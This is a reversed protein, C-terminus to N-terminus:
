CRRWTGPRRWSSPDEGLRGFVDEVFHPGAPGVLHRRSIITTAPLFKPSPRTRTRNGRQEGFEASAPSTASSNLNAPEETVGDVGPQGRHVSGSAVVMKLSPSVPREIQSRPCPAVVGRSRRSRHGPQGSRIRSMMELPPTSGLSAACPKGARRVRRGASTWCRRSERRPCRRMIPLSSRLTRAPLVSTREGTRIERRGVVDRDGAGCEAFPPAIGVALAPLPQRRCRRVAASNPRSATV